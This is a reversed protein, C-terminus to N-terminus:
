AFSIGLQYEGYLIDEKNIQFVGINTNLSLGLLINSEKHHFGYCFLHRSQKKSYLMIIKGNEITSSEAIIAIDNKKFSPIDSNDEIIIGALRKSSNYNIFQKKYPKSQILETFSSKEKTFTSFKYIMVEQIQNVKNITDMLFPKGEGHALWEPNANLLKAIEETYKSRSAGKNCLHNIAQPSIGIKSALHNKKIGSTEILFTLRESLSALEDINKNSAM